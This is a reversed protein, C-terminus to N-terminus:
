ITKGHAQSKCDKFAKETREALSHNKKNNNNNERGEKKLRSQEKTNSKREQVKNKTNAKM